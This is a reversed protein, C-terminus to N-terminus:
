VPLSASQRSQSCFAGGIEQPKLQTMTMWGVGWVKSWVLWCHVRAKDLIDTDQALSMSVSAWQLCMCMGNNSHEETQVEEDESQERNM